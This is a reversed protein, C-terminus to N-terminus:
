LYNFFSIHFHCSHLFRADGKTIQLAVGPTWSIVCLLDKAKAQWFCLCSGTVQIIHLGDPAPVPLLFPFKLHILHFPFVEKSCM